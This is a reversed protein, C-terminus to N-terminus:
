ITEPEVVGQRPRPDEDARLRPSQVFRHPDPCGIRENGGATQVARFGIHRIRQEIGVVARRHGEGSLSTQLAREAQRLVSQNVSTYTGIEVPPRFDGAGRDPPGIGPQRLGLRCDQSANGHKKGLRRLRRIHKGVAKEARKRTSGCGNEAEAIGLYAITRKPSADYDIAIFQADVGGATHFVREDDGALDGHGAAGADGRLQKGAIREDDFGAGHQFVGRSDICLLIGLHTVPGLHVTIGNDAIRDAAFLNRGVVALRTRRAQPTEHPDVAHGLHLADDRPPSEQPLRDVERRM